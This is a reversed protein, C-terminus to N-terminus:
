DDPFHLDFSCHSIVVCRNSHIDNFLCSIILTPLSTLFHSGKNVTPLITFQYPWQSFCYPPEEFFLFAICGM